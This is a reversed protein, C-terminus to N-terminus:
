SRYEETLLRDFYKLEELRDAREMRPQRHIRYVQASVPDYTEWRQTGPFLGAEEMGRNPDGYRIFGSWATNMCKAVTRGSEDEGGVLHLLKDFVFNLEMIHRIGLGEERIKETLYDFQYAYVKRGKAAMADGYALLPSHFSVLTILQGLVKRATRDDAPYKRMIEEAHAPFTNRIFDEYKARDAFMGAFMTGDDTNYGFLLDVSGAKQTRPDPLVDRDFITGVTLPDSVLRLRVGEPSFYWRRILEEAPMRRLQELGAPSDPVDLMAAYRQGQELMMEVSNRGAGSKPAFGRVSGSELIGRQFTRGAHDTQLMMSVFAAGASEGGITVNEPDGGFFEINEHLWELAQMVDTVSYGGSSPHEAELAELELCGFVGMRYNISVYVIGKQVFADGTYLPLSGSGTEFGGGHLFLYVPLRASPDPHEGAADEILPAPTSVNAFLCDERSIRLLEPQKGRAFPSLQIAPAGPQIASRVGSWSEPPEAPAFRRRGVPAAAYPIGRFVACGYQREGELVGYKTHVTLM